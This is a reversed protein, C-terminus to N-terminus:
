ARAGRLPAVPDPVREMISTREPKPPIREVAVSWAPLHLEIGNETPMVDVIEPPRKMPKIGEPLRVRVTLTDGQHQKRGMPFFASADGPEIRLKGANPGRGFLLQCSGGKEIFRRQPLLGTRLTITLFSPLRGAGASTSVTAAAGAIRRSAGLPEWSM